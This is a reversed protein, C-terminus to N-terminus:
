IEPEAWPCSPPFTDEPTTHSSEVIGPSSHREPTSPIFGPLMTNKTSMMIIPCKLLSRRSRVVIQTPGLTIIRPKFPSM